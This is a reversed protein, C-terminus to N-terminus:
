IISGKQVTELVNKYAIIIEILNDILFKIIIITTEFWKM